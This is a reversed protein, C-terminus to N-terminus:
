TIVASDINTIVNDRLRESEIATIVTRNKVSVVFALDNLVVLSERGGKKEVQAVAQELQALQSESLSIGRQDLRKAAHASFTIGTRQLKSDLVDKFSSATSSTGKPDPTKPTKPPQIPLGRPFQLNKGSM